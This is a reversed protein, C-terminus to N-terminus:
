KGQLFDLVRAFKMSNSAKVLIADGTQLFRDLDSLLDAVQQYHEGSFSPMEKSHLEDWLDAMLPGCLLVTDPKALHVQTALDRHYQAANTGLEAMDGLILIRRNATPMAAVMEIAAQMSAPNANYSEDVVSLTKENFKVSTIAGRGPKPQFKSLEALFPKLPGGLILRVAIAAISNMAMHLGLAAIQFALKQGHPFQVVVKGDAQTYSSLRLDAGESQGYTLVRVNRRAAHERFDGYFAIDRNLVLIGGPAIGEIINAKRRAVAKLGENGRLHSASINTIVGVDPRVLRINQFKPANIATAAAEVVAVDTSEPTNALQHLMGVRSNYNTGFTGSVNCNPGLAQILMQCLSTKGASGTIAVVKGKMRNRAFAGLQLIAHLPDSVQLLPFDPDVGEVPRAVIAGAVKHQLQPLDKHLDWCPQSTFDSLEHRMAMRQDILAVLKPAKFGWNEHQKIKHTVSRVFWGEPPPVLWKGGTIQELQKATWLIEPTPEIADLPPAEYKAPNKRLVAFGQKSSLEFGVTHPLSVRQTKGRHSVLGVSLTLTTDLWNAVKSPRLTYFDRYIQGTSWRSLPWMWDCPDHSCGLGWSGVEGPQPPEARFDIRWDCGVPRPIRWWSEVEILGTKELRDPSLRLGLLEMEGIQLVEPIRADEPVDNALWEPRPAGLGSISTRETHTRAPRQESMARDPPEIRLVGKGDGAQELASGLAACKESFRQVAANAADGEYPLTRCFGIELPTFRVATVGRHDLDLTFVGSDTDSRTLADFLLDGADHLIPRNKYVEIGQLVHASTGLVADAGADILAHGGVIESKDPANRNNPGWHVAVLVVDALDRAASIRPEMITKWDAPNRPDLWAIGPKDEEAAFSEQTADVSFLAVDLGGARRIVPHFAADRCQGSGAHGIGARDLWKAQELLAEPGYDGSHNNATAVLDVGGDVLTDLMEPRARFYYSAREGKDIAEAGTTAVVCELNVITLDAEALPAIRALAKRANAREFRFHFRRGINVDGGWAVTGTRLPPSTPCM